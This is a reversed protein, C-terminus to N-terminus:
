RDPGYRGHDDHTGPGIPNDQQDGELRHVRAPTRNRGGGTPVPASVRNASGM